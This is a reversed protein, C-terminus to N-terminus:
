SDETIPGFFRGLFEHCPRTWTVSPSSGSGGLQRYVVVVSLDAEVFGVDIVIYVTGSKEHKWITGPPVARLYAAQLRRIQDPSLKQKPSEAVPPM